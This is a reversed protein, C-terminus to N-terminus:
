LVPVKVVALVSSGTSNMAEKEHKSPTLGQGSTNGAAWAASLFYSNGIRHFTLYSDYQRGKREVPYVRVMVAQRSEKNRLTLVSRNQEIRYDGAAMRSQGAEFAFPVHATIADYDQATAPLSACLSALGLTAVATLFNRNM